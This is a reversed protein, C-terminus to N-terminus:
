LSPSPQCINSFGAWCSLPPTIIFLSNDMSNTRTVSAAAMALALPTPRPSLVANVLQGNISHALHKIRYVDTPGDDDAFAFHVLSRHEVNPFMDTGAARFHIDSDVRNFARVKNSFSLGTGNGNNRNSRFSAQEMRRIHVHVLNSDTGTGFAADVDIIGNGSVEFPNGLGQIASDTVKRNNGKVTWTM